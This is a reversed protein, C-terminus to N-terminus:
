SDHEQLTIKNEPASWLTQPTMAVRQSPIRM